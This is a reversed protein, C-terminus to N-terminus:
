TGSEGRLYHELLIEDETFRIGNIRFGVKMAFKLMVTNNNSIFTTLYKYKPKCYEVAAVYSQFSLSTERTGRFTGGYQMYLTHADNERCTIYGHLEGEDSEVLLAFSIRDWEKPKHKGFCSLHAREALPAWDEPHLKTVKM